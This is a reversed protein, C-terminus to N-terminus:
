SAKPRRLHHGRGPVPAARAVNHPAMPASALQDPVACHTRFTPSSCMAFASNTRREDLLLPDDLHRRTWQNFGTACESRLWDSRWARLTMASAPSFSRERAEEATAADGAHLVYEIAIQVASASTFNLAALLLM